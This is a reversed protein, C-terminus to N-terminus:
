KKTKRRESSLKSYTTSPWSDFDLTLNKIQTKMSWFICWHFLTKRNKPKKSNQHFNAIGKQTTAHINLWLFV